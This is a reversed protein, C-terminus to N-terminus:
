YISDHLNQFAFEVPLEEEKKEEEMSVRIAAHDRSVLGEISRQDSENEFLSEQSEVEDSPVTQMAMTFLFLTGKGAGASQM